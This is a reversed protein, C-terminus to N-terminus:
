LGLPFLFGGYIWHTVDTIWNAIDTLGGAFVLYNAVVVFLVANGIVTAQLVRDRPLVRM